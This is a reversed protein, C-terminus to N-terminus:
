LQYSGCRYLCLLAITKLHGRVYYIGVFTPTPTQPEEGGDGLLSGTKFVIPFFNYFGCCFKKTHYIFVQCCISVMPYELIEKVFFTNLM